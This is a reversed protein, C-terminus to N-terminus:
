ALLTRLLRRMPPSLNLQGRNASSLAQAAFLAHDDTAFFLLENAAAPELQEHIAALLDALVVDLEVSTM